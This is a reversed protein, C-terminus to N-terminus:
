RDGSELWYVPEGCANDRDSWIADGVIEHLAQWERLGPDTDIEFQTHGAERPSCTAFGIAAEVALRDDSKRDNVGKVRCAPPRVDRMFGLTKGKRRFEVDYGPGSERNVVVFTLGSLRHRFRAPIACYNSM